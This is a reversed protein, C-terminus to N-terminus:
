LPEEYNKDIETHLYGAKPETKGSYEQAKLLWFRVASHWDEMKTNGSVKWGKSSFHFVFKQAEDKAQLKAKGFEHSLLFEFFDEVEKLGPPEWKEQKSPYIEKGKLSAGKQRGNQQRRGTDTGTDFRICSVESGKFPNFSPTYRIYGFSDLEQLCKSYTNNSGIKSLKKVETRNISIPSKFRELNWLQFLALYLSIHHPSLRDDESMASYVENLHKIYNVKQTM